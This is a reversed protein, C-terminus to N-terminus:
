NRDLGNEFDFSISTEQDFRSFLISSNEETLFKFASVKRDSHSQLELREPTELNVKMECFTVSQM